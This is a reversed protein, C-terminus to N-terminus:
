TGTFMFARGDGECNIITAEPGNISRITIAENIEINKNGDGTYTGDAVLVVDGASAAAVASGIDHFANAWGSGDQSGAANPDVYVSLGCGAADEDCVAIDRTDADEIGIDPAETDADEIGIDPAETDADEIGVDPAETDADEIGVDPAETDADEISVDPAETDADEIGVDPADADASSHLDDGGDDEQASYAVGSGGFVNCASVLPGAALTTLLVVTTMARSSTV